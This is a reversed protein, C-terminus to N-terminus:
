ASCDNIVSQSFPIVNSSANLLFQNIAIMGTFKIHAFTGYACLTKLM